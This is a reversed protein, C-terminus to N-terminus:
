THTYSMSRPHHSTLGDTTPERRRRRRHMSPRRRGPRETGLSAFAAPCPGPPARASPRHGTSETTAARAGHSLIKRPVTGILPSPTAYVTSITVGPWSFCLSLSLSLSLDLSSWERRARSCAATSSNLSIGGVSLRRQAAGQATDSCAWKTKEQDLTM